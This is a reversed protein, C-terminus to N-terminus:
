DQNSFLGRWVNMDPLVLLSLPPRIGTSCPEWHQRARPALPTIAGSGGRGQQSGTVGQGGMVRRAGHACGQARLGPLQVGALFRGKLVWVEQGRESGCCTNGVSETEEWSGRGVHEQEAAAASALEHPSKM